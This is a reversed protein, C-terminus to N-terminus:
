VVGQEPLADAQWDFGRGAEGGAMAVRRRWVRGEVRVSAELEWGEGHPGSYVHVSLSAPVVSPVGPFLATWAEGGGESGAVSGAEPPDCLEGLQVFGLGEACRAAQLAGIELAAAGMLAGAAAETSAYGLPLPM